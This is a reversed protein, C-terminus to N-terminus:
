EGKSWQLKVKTSAKNNNISISYIKLIFLRNPFSRHRHNYPPIFLIPTIRVTTKSIQFFWKHQDQGM